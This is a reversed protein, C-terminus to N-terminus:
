LTANKWRETREPLLGSGTEFSRAIESIQSPGGSEVSLLSPGAQASAAGFATEAKSVHMIQV